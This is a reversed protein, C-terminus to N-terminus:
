RLHALIYTADLYNAAYILVLCFPSFPREKPAPSPQRLIETSILRNLANSLEPKTLSAPLQPTGATRPLYQLIQVLKSAINTSYSINASLASYPLLVAM